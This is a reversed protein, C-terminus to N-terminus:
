LYGLHQLNVKVNFIFTAVIILRVFLFLIGGLLLAVQVRHPTSQLTRHSQPHYAATVPAYADNSPSTFGSRIRDFNLNSHGKDGRDGARWM